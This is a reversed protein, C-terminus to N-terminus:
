STTDLEHVQQEVAAVTQEVDFEAKGSEWGVEVRKADDAHEIIEINLKGATNKIAHVLNDKIGGEIKPLKITVLSATSLNTVIQSIKSQIVESFVSAFSSSGFLKRSVLSVYELMRKSLSLLGEQQQNEIAALSDRIQILISEMHKNQELIEQTVAFHVDKHSADDVQEEIVANSEAAELEEQDNDPKLVEAFPQVMPEHFDRLPIKNIKQEM